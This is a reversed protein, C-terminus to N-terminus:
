RGKSSGNQNGNNQMGVVSNGRGSNQQLATNMQRIENRLSEFDEKTAFNSTDISQSAGSQGPPLANVPEEETYRLKKLPNPMGAANFTRLYIVNDNTDWLAIPGTSGNPVMYAKAGVEGDVPIVNSSMPAAPAAAYSQSVAPMMSVNGSYPNYGAYWSNGMNYPNTYGPM